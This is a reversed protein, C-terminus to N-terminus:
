AVAPSTRSLRRALFRERVARAAVEIGLTYRGYAITLDGANADRGDGPEMGAPLSRASEDYLSALGAADQNPVGDHFAQL